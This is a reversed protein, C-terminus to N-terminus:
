ELALIAVWQDPTVPMVSLRNGRRVLPLEALAPCAKLEALTICRALRRQLRVDVMFWRPAAPDSRSDYHPDHPDLATPDPYGERVIEVIGVVGPPQTNSHYFLAQDGCRMQRLFNRAQYNRVGDWCATQGPEAALDELGFVAPESKLLWYNM